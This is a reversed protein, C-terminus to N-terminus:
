ASSSSWRRATSRACRRAAMPAPCADASPACAWSPGGRRGPGAGGETGGGSAGGVKADLQKELGLMSQVVSEDLGQQAAALEREQAALAAAVEAELESVLGAQKRQAAQKRKRVM